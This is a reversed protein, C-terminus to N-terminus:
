GNKMNKIINNCKIEEKSHRTEENTGYAYTEWSDISTIRKEDNACLVINYVEETFVSHRKPRFKEQSKIICRNTKHNRIIKKCLKQM